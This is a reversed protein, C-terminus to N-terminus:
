ASLAVAPGAATRVNDMTISMGAAVDTFDMGAFYGIAPRAGPRPVLEAGEDSVLGLDSDGVKLGLCFIPGDQPVRTTETASFLERYFTSLRDLDPTLIVSTITM